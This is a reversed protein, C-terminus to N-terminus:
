GREGVALLLRGRPPGTLWDLGRAFPIILDRRAFAGAGMLPRNRLMARDLWWGAIGLLNVWRMSVVRLRAQTFLRQLAEPRYGRIGYTPQLIRPPTELAWALVVVRGGPSLIAAAHRLARADDPVLVLSNSFLVGTPKLTRLAVVRPRQVDLHILRVHAHRGVRAHARRLCRPNRDVGVLLSAGLMRELMLGTGCGIEVIRRGLYPAVLDHKWAYHRGMAAIAELDEVLLDRRRSGAPENGARDATFVPLGAIRRSRNRLPQTM